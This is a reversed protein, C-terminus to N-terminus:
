KIEKLGTGEYTYREKGNVKHIRQDIVQFINDRYALWFDVDIVDPSDLSKFKASAIYITRGDKQFSWVPENIRPLNLRWNRNLKDDHIIFVGGQSMSQVDINEKLTKKVFDASIEKGPHQLVEGPYEAAEVSKVNFCFSLILVGLFCSLSKTM